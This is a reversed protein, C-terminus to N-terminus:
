ADKEDDDDDDDHDHSERDYGYDPGLWANILWALRGTALAILIGRLVLAAWHPVYMPLAWCGLTLWIPVQYNLCLSCGLFESLRNERAEIRARWGAFLAGNLWIDVVAGTALPLLVVNLLLDSGTM